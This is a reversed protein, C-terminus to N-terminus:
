TKEPLSFPLLNNTQFIFGVHDRRFKQRDGPLLKEVRQGNVEITGTTPTLLGGLMSLLTTKGSGSPGVIAIFSGKNIALNVDVVANVTMRGSGSIKALSIVKLNM